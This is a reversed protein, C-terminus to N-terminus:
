HRSKISCDTANTVRELMFDFIKQQINLHTLDNFVNRYEIYEGFVCKDGINYVYLKPCISSVEGEYYLEYSNSIKENYKIVICKGNIKFLKV